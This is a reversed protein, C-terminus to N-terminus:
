DASYEEILGQDKLYHLKLTGSFSSFKNKVIALDLFTENESSAKPYVASSLIMLLNSAYRFSDSFALEYTLESSTEDWAQETIYTTAIVPIRYTDAIFKLFTERDTYNIDTRHRSNTHELNYIGDVFLISNEGIWKRMQLDLSELDTVDSVDMIDLRANKDLEELEDYGKLLATQEESGEKVHRVDDLGVGTLLSLLRNVIHDKNDNLSVFLTCSNPNSRLVDLLLNVAFSTKGVDSRGAVVILGPQLGDTSVALNHFSNLALGALPAKEVDRLKKRELYETLHHGDSVYNIEHEMRLDSIRQKLEDIDIRKGKNLAEATDQLIMMSERRLQDKVRHEQYEEVEHELLEVSLLGDESTIRDLFDKIEFTNQLYGLFDIAEIVADRRGKESGVDHKKIIRGAKWRPGTNPSIAIHRFAEIGRSKIVQWPASYGKPYEVVSCSLLGKRAVIDVIKEIGTEGETDTDLAINFHRINKSLAHEIQEGNPVALGSAVVGPIGRMTCIMADLPNEVVIIDTQGDIVESNFFYNIVANDNFKSYLEQKKISIFYLAEVKASPNRLPVVVCFEKEYEPHDLLGAASLTTESYGSATLASRLSEATDYIGVDMATIEADTCGRWKLFAIGPHDKRHHAVSKFHQFAVDLINSGFRLLGIGEQDLIHDAHSEDMEALDLLKVLVQRDTSLDHMKKVYDWINISLSCQPNTTCHIMVDGTKLSATRKHCRPCTIEIGGKVEKPDSPSLLEFRDLREFVTKLIHQDEVKDPM